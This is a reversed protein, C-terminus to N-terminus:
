QRVSIDRILRLNIDKVTGDKMRIHLTGSSPVSVPEGGRNGRGQGNDDSDNGGGNNEGRGESHGSFSIAAGSLRVDFTGGGVPGNTTHLIITQRKTLRISKTDRGTGGGDGQAFECCLLATSADRGLLEFNLVGIDNRRAKVDVTITLEGPGATFSYFNEANHDNMNGSLTGSSLPTPTDRDSSQALTSGASTLIFVFIAFLLYKPSKM